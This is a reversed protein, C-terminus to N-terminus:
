PHIGTIRAESMSVAQCFQVCLQTLLHWDILYYAMFITLLAASSILLEAQSKQIFKEM